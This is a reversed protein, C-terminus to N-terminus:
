QPTNALLSDAQSKVVPKPRFVKRLSDLKTDLVDLTVNMLLVKGSKDILVNAPLRIIGYLQLKGMGNMDSLPVQYWSISDSQTLKALSLSDAKVGFSVIEMGAPKYKAYLSKLAKHSSSNEISKYDWFYILIWKAWIGPISIHRGDFTQFQLSPVVMGPRLTNEIQSISDNIRHYEIIKKYDLVVQKKPYLLSLCSDVKRYLKSYHSYPLLQESDLTANVVFISILEFPNSAAFLYAQNKLDNRLSDKVLLYVKLLSDKVSIETSDIADIKARYDKLIKSVKNIKNQFNVVQVTEPSGNAQWGNAYTLTIKEGPKASILLPYDKKDTTIAIVQPEKTNFTITGEGSSDLLVSDTFFNGFGPVRFYVRRETWQPVKISIEVRDYHNSCAAILVLASVQFIFIFKKSFFNIPM